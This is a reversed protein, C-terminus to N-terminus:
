TIQFMAATQNSSLKLPALHRKKPLEQDVEPNESTSIDPEEDSPLLYMHLFISLIEIVGFVVFPLMFGGLGHLFGGLALAVFEAISIYLEMTGITLNLNEPFLKVAYTLATTFIVSGGLNTMILCVFSGVIFWLRSPSYQLLGLFISFIANTGVGTIFCIKPGFAAIAMGILPGFVVSVAERVSYMIGILIATVEYKEGEAPFFPSILVPPAVM